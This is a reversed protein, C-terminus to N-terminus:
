QWEFRLGPETRADRLYAAVELAKEITLEQHRAAEQFLRLAALAERHIDQAQFIPLMEEAVRQVDAMRGDKLYLIALDLSAMAADYGIGQGIFGDRVELYAQEAGAFDGSAAAIDGRLWTLRLQLWSEQVKEYLAQDAEFLEAAEEFRGASVLYFTLNYHGAVHLLLDSRPGLLGLAARVTEIAQDLSGRLRYVDALNTLARAADDPARRLSFLLAARKLLREAEVFRLQDKRLSGLLDDVRAVVELDTVGHQSIIQRALEFSQSAGRLDGRARCANALLATALAYLDYYGPMRPNRNAIKRALDALEHAEAPQGPMSRRSADLLLRVLVPSRFRTRSREIRVAREPGPLSLIEQLDREARRIERPGFALFRDLLVSFAQLVRSWISPGAQVEAEYAQIEARCHTCLSLLHELTTENLFSEPLEGRAVARFLERSIHIDDM